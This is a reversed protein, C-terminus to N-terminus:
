RVELVALEKKREGEGERFVCTSDNFERAYVREAVERLLDAM